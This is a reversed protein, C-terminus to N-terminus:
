RPACAETRMAGTVREKGQLDRFTTIDAYGEVHLLERVDTGQDYGHELLLWAGNELHLPAATGIRRLDGLGDLGAALATRPEFRLDGQALHPDRERIYPPNSVIMHFRRGTLPAFWDGTLFTVNRVQLSAANETAVTLATPSLDTATVRCRPRERALALAIAGSGTGLDLLDWEADGPIRQLALEVLLETEHRPILTAPTVKLELSWFERKSTLYAIPEGRRRAAILKEFRELAAADPVEGAHARLYSREQGLAHALLLEADLQPAPSADALAETADSLLTSLPQPM